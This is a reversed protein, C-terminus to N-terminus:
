LRVQTLLKGIRKFRREESLTADRLRQNRCEADRKATREAAVQREWLEENAARPSGCPRPALSALFVEMDRVDQLLSALQEKQRQRPRDSRLPWPWKRKGSVSEAEQPNHRPAAMPSSSKDANAPVIAAKVDGLFAGFLDGGGCGVDGGTGASCVLAAASRAVARRVGAPADSLWVSATLDDM